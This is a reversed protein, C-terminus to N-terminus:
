FVVALIPDHLSKKPEECQQTEIKQTRKRLVLLCLGQFILFVVQKKNQPLNPRNEPTIM